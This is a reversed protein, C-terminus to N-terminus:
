KNAEQLDWADAMELLLNKYWEAYERLCKTDDALVYRPRVLQIKKGHRELHGEGCASLLADWKM